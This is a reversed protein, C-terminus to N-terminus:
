RDVAEDLLEILKVSKGARTKIKVAKMVKNGKEDISEEEQLMIGFMMHDLQTAKRDVFGCKEAGEFVQKFHLQQGVDTVYVIRNAKLEQTRYKMCALDTAHYGFGGDSKRVIMPPSKKKGVKIILAGENEEAIKRKVIDEVIPKLMPNYFSEGLEKLKIDMRDYIKQFEKRSLDCLM